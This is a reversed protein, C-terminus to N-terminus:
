PQAEQLWPALLVSVSIGLLTAIEAIEDVDLRTKGREIDSIAAYSRHKELWRGLQAQTVGAAKRADRVREGFAKYTDTM